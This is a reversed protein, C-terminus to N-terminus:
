YKYTILILKINVTRMWELDFYAEFVAFTDGFAAAESKIIRHAEVISERPVLPLALYKKFIDAAVDNAKIKKLFDAISRSKRRLAQCYHFWCGSVVVGRYVRKLARRLAKEYDSMFKDPNLQCVNAEIFRFLAVYAKTTKRTM